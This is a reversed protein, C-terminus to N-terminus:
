NSLITQLKKPTKKSVVEWNKIIEYKAQLSNLLHPHKAFNIKRYYRFFEKTFYNRDIPYSKELLHFIDNVKDQNDRILYQSFLRIIEKQQSFSMKRIKSLDFEEIFLRDDLDVSLNQKKFTIRYGNNIEKFSMQASPSKEALLYIPFFNSFINQLSGSLFVGKVNDIDKTTSPLNTDVILIFELNRNQTTNTQRGGRYRVYSQTIIAIKGKKSLINIMEELNIIGENSYSVLIYKSNIKEVLQTFENVATKSYCFGSRTKVWDKRIASKDIKKGKIWFEKNVQPRDNKAITNLLHYNSGYQHQNYPPDLYVVEAPTNKLKEVLDLANMCSAVGKNSHESLSPVRLKIKALIRGLADGNRGGFGKHFGKFIGSTNSRKSAEVLLLALLLDKKKQSNPSNTYRLDIEQRINDILIGNQHTYFIRETEVNVNDDKQPCYYHSIYSNYSNEKDLNNMEDLVKGLGGEDDFLKLDKQDFEIFGKNLCYSYHEWDNAIVEYGLSQMLRSIVGTGAFYDVFLGKRDIEVSGLTEIEKVSDLILELLRRKNGIYAILNKEVYDKSYYYRNPTETLNDLKSQKKNKIFKTKKNEM